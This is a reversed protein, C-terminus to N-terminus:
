LNDEVSVTKLEKWIKILVIGTNTTFILIMISSFNRLILYVLVSLMGAITNITDNKIKLGFKFFLLMLGLITPVEWLTLAVWIGFTTMIAKGGQFNLFPSFAHGLVPAIAIPILRFDNINLVRNVLFVPLFGKLGDLLMSPVGIMWGGTRWANAVGPNGDGIKRIDIKKIKGLWYSFMLTGCFYSSITLIIIKAM